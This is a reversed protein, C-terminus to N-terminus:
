GETRLVHEILSNVHEWRKVGRPAGVELAHLVTEFPRSIVM